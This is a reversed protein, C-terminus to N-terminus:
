RHCDASGTRCNQGGVGSEANLVVIPWTGLDLSYHGWEGTRGAFYAFYEAGQIDGV